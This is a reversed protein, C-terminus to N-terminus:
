LDLPRIHVPSANKQDIVERRVAGALKSERAAESRSARLDAACKRNEVVTDKGAHRFAERRLFQAQERERCPIVNEPDVVPLLQGGFIPGLKFLESLIRGGPRDPMASAAEHGPATSM